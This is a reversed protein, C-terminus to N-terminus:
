FNNLKECLIYLGGVMRYLLVISSDTNQPPAFDDNINTPRDGRKVM